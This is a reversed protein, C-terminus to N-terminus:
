THEEAIATAGEAGATAAEDAGDETQWAVALLLVQVLMVLAYKSAQLSPAIVMSSRALMIMAWALLGFQVSWVLSRRQGMTAIAAGLVALPFVFIVLKYDHSIAPVVSMVPVCAAAGLVARRANWGRRVLVALTLAWVALPVILLPWYVWSPAWTTVQRLVVSLSAASHNGWWYVKAVSEVAAQGSITDMLTRPGAILLLALNAVL